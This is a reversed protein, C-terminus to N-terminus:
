ITFGKETKKSRLSRDIGYGPQRSKKIEVYLMQEIEIM